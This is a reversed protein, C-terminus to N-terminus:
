NFFIVDREELDTLFTLTDKEAESQDVDYEACVSNSIARVTNVGDVKSWIFAGVENLVKVKGKMPLVLVAEGDVVRGMVGEVRCPVSDLNTM